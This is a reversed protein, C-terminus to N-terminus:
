KEVWQDVTLTGGKEVGIVNASYTRQGDTFTITQGIWKNRSLRRLIARWWRKMRGPNSFKYEAQYIANFEAPALARNWVKLRRVRM